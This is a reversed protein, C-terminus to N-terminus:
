QATWETLSPLYVMILPLRLDDAPRDLDVGDDSLRTRIAAQAEPAVFGPEEVLSKIGTPGVLALLGQVLNRRVTPSPHDIREVVEPGDTPHMLAVLTYSARDALVGADEGIIALLRQALDYRSDEGFEARDIGLIASTGAIQVYRHEDVLARRLQAIREDATIFEPYMLLNAVAQVDDWDHLVAEIELRDDLDLANPDLDARARALEDLASTTLFRRLPTAEGGAPDDPESLAMCRKPRAGRRVVGSAANGSDYTLWQPFRFV